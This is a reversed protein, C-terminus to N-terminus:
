AVAGMQTTVSPELGRQFAAAGRLVSLVYDQGGTDKAKHDNWYWLNIPLKGETDGLYNLVAFYAPCAHLQALEVEDPDHQADISLGMAAAIAGEICLAGSQVRWGASGTTWGRAEILDAALDLVESVRMDQSM